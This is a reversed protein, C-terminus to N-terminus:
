WTTDALYAKNKVVSAFDEFQQELFDLGAPSMYVLVENIVALHKYDLLKADVMELIALLKPYQEQSNHLLLRASEEFNDRLKKQIQPQSVDEDNQMIFNLANAQVM